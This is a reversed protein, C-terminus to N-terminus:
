RGNAQGACLRRFGHAGGRLPHCRRVSGRFRGSGLALGGLFAPMVLFKLFTALVVPGKHRFRRTSGFGAGVALLALGLAGQGIMDLVQVGMIPM